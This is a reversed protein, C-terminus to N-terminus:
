LKSSYIPRLKSIRHCKLGPNQSKGKPHSSFADDSKGGRNQRPYCLEMGVLSRPRLTLTKALEQGSGRWAPAKGRQTVDEWECASHSRGAKDQGHSHSLGWPKAPFGRSCSRLFLLLSVTQPPSSPACRNGQGLALETM